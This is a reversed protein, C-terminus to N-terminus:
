KSAQFCHRMTVVGHSACRNSQALTCRAPKRGQHQRHEAQARENGGAEHQRRDVALEGDDQAIGIRRTGRMVRAVVIMRTVMM